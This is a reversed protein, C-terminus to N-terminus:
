FFFFYIFFFSKGEINSGCALKWTVTFGPQEGVVREVKDGPGAFKLNSNMMETNDMRNGYELSLDNISADFHHSFERLFKVRHHGEMVDVDAHFIVSATTVMDKCGFSRKSKVINLILKKDSQPSNQGTSSDRKFVIRIGKKMDHLTPVGQLKNKKSDFSLWKPLTNSGEEM